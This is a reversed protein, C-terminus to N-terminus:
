LVVWTDDFLGNHTPNWESIM